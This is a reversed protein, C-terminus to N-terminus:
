GNVPVRDEGFLIQFTQLAQKWHHVGRWRKSAKRVAATETRISASSKGDAAPKKEFTSDRAIRAHLERGCRDPLTRCRQPTRGSVDGGVRGVVLIRPHRAGIAVFRTLTRDCRELGSQRRHLATV